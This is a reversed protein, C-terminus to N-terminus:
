TSAEVAEDPPIVPRNQPPVIVAPFPSPARSPYEALVEFQGDTRARGIYSPHSTYHNAYVTLPWGEPNGEFQTRTLAHRLSDVTRDPAHTAARALLWVANYAGIQTVHTPADAGFRSSFSRLYRSNEANNLSSFYTAAMYHGAGSEPGMAQLDIESTVTAAIPLTSADFGARGFQQYFMSTSLTGVVNSVIVTPRTDSIEALVSSFDTEGLPVYREAVITAGTTRAIADIIASVTRPYIYDSGVVYIRDGLHELIWYIYDLLFQNPAAASYFTRTDTELGEFYTPYVLLSCTEHIAQLMAIRSASTYGGVCANVGDERVLKKVKAAATFCDSECDEVLAILPQGDIGGAANVEDVALLAGRYMSCEATSLYGSQSFALGIRFGDRDPATRHSDPTRAASEM